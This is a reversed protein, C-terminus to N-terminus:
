ALVKARSWIITRQGELIFWKVWGDNTHLGDRVGHVDHRSGEGVGFEGDRSSVVVEIRVVGSGVNNRDRRDVAVIYFNGRGFGIVRHLHSIRTM